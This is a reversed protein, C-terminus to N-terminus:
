AVFGGRALGIALGVFGAIIGAVILVRQERTASVM